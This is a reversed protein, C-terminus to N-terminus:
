SETRSINRLHEQYEPLKIMPPREREAIEEVDLFYGGEEYRILKMTKNVDAVFAREYHSELKRMVAQIIAFSMKSLAELTQNHHVRELLDVQAISSLGFKELMDILMGTEVGYGSFFPCQELGKRRGAYEGSLPQIVGSLEPYFLNLLPRATLETVRGGGGAQVKDGIRLPRRYFGKVFQIKPNLLLPGIIGYVFRPHINVIDTDIWAIVDGKTALLSKWLAEGKGRRAGLEPLMNQHIHVPIGLKEAIDRTKDTSDSDILVIEDLLPVKEMLAKKITKIVKGVTEEENLAPLALSITLNQEEKLAVLRKLDAFEDAHFTNEAFWKDVLISIAQSSTSEDISTEALERRSKVLVIPHPSEALVHDAVPGLSVASISPRATAGMIILDSEATEELITKATDSTVVSRQEVEPMRALVRGLGRFPADTGTDGELQMHLATLHPPHLNLGIRMAIEAHPGGRVAVVVKEPSEPFDGSLLAVDCSTRTFVEAATINLAALHTPWEMIVLDPDIDNIVKQFERWADQSVLVQARGKIKKNESLQRLQQRLERAKAAGASLAEDAPQSVVGVLSIEANLAHALALANDSSTGHILPVLVHRLSAFIPKTM